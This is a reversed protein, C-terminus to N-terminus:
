KVLHGYKKQWKRLTEESVGDRKLDERLERKVDDGAESRVRVVRGGGMGERQWSRLRALGWGALFVLLAGVVLAVCFVVGTKWRRKQRKKRYRRASERAVYPNAESLVKDIAEKVEEDVDIFQVGAVVERSPDKGKGIWRIEGGLIQRGLGLGKPMELTIPREIALKDKTEQRTRLRCGGCSLDLITCPFRWERGRAEIEFFSEVRLEGRVHQRRTNVENAAM